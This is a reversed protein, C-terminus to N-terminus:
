YNEYKDGAIDNYGIKAFYFLSQRFYKTIYSTYSFFILYYTLKNASIGKYKRKPNFISLYIARNM